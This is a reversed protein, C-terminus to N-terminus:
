APAQDIIERMLLAPCPGSRPSAPIVHLLLQHQHQRGEQAAFRPGGVSAIAAANAAVAAAAAVRVVM